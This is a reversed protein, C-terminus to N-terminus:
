VAAKEEVLLIIAVPDGHKEKERASHLKFTSAMFSEGDILLRQGSGEPDDPSALLALDVQDLVQAVKSEGLPALKGVTTLPIRNRAEVLMLTANGFRILSAINSELEREALRLTLGYLTRQNGEDTLRLRCSSWMHVWETGAPRLSWYSQILLGDEGTLADYYGGVMDWADEPNLWTFLHQVHREENAERGDGIMAPDDGSTRTTMATMDLVWVNYTPRPDPERDGIWVILAVPTGDSADIKHSEVILGDVKPITKGSLLARVVAEVVAEGSRDLGLKKACRPLPRAVREGAASHIFVDKGFQTGIIDVALWMGQISM